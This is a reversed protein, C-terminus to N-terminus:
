SSGGVKEAREDFSKRSRELSNSIHDLKDDERRGELRHGLEIEDGHTQLHFGNAGANIESLDGRLPAASIASYDVLASKL